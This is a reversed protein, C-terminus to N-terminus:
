GRNLKLSLSFATYLIDKFKLYRYWTTSKYNNVFNEQVRMLDDQTKLVGLSHVERLVPEELGGELEVVLAQQHLHLLPVLVGVEEEPDEGEAM